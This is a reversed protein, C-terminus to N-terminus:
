VKLVREVLAAWFQTGKVLLEDNFDYASDHLSKSNGNGIGLYCGPVAQLMFSFDESFMFPGAMEIRQLDQGISHAADRVL